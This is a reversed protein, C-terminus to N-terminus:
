ILTILIIITSVMVTTFYAAYTLAARNHCFDNDHNNQKFNFDCNNLMM